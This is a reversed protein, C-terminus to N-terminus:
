GSAPGPSPPRRGRPRACSRPCGAGPRPVGGLADARPEAASHRRSAAPTVAGSRTRPCVRGAGTGALMTGVRVVSPPRWPRVSSAACRPGITIACTTRGRQVSLRHPRTLRAPTARRRRARRWRPPPGPARRRAGVGLAPRGPDGRGPGRRVPGQEVGGGAPAPDAAREVARGGGPRGAPRRQGRAEGAVDGGGHAVQRPAGSCSGSGAGRPSVTSSPPAPATTSAM